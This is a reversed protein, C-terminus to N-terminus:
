VSALILMSSSVLRMPKQGLAGIMSHAQPSRRARARLVPKETDGRLRGAGGVDAAGEPIGEVLLEALHELRPNVREEFLRILRACRFSRSLSAALVLHGPAFPYRQSRVVPQGLGRLDARDSAGSQAADRSQQISTRARTAAADAQVV